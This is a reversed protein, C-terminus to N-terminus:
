KNYEYNTQFGTFSKGSIHARETHDHTPYVKEPNLVVKAEAGKSLLLKVLKSHAKQSGTRLPITGYRDATNVKAWSDLLLKVVAPYGQSSALILPIEYDDGRTNFDVKYARWPQM